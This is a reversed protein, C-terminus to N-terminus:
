KHVDRTRTKDVSGRHRGADAFRIDRKRFQPAPVYADVEMEKCAEINKVSYYGTDASIQRNKLPEEWGISELNEKAGKLMPEM